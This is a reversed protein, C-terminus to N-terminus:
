HMLCRMGVYMGENEKKSFAMYSRNKCHAPRLPANPIFISKLSSALDKDIMDLQLLLYLVWDRMEEALSVEADTLKGNEAMNQLADAFVFIPTIWPSVANENMSEHGPLRTYQLMVQEANSIMDAERLDAIIENWNVAFAYRHVNQHFFLPKVNKEKTSEGNEKEASCAVNDRPLSIQQNQLINSQGRFAMGKQWWLSPGLPMLTGLESFRCVRAFFGRRERVTRCLTTMLLYFVSTDIFTMLFSPIARAIMLLFDGDVPFHVDTKLLYTKENPFVSSLWGENSLDILADALPVIILFYDFLGKVFLTTVWFLMNRLFGRWTTKLANTPSVENAPHGRILLRDLFGFSLCDVGILKYCKQVAEISHTIIALLYTSSAVIWLMKFARRDLGAVTRDPALFQFFFIALLSLFLLMWLLWEGYVLVPMGETRTSAFKANKKKGNTKTENDSETDTESDHSDGNIRFPRKKKPKRGKGCCLTVSTIHRYQLHHCVKVGRSLHGAVFRECM